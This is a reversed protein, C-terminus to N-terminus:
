VDNSSVAAVRVRQKERLVAVNVAATNARISARKCSFAIWETARSFGIKRVNGINTAAAEVAYGKNSHVSWNM